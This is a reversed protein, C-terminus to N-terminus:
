VAAACLAASCEWCPPCWTVAAPCGPFLSPDRLCRVWSACLAPPPPATWARASRHPLAPCSSPPAPPAPRCPLAAPLRQPPALCCPPLHRLPAPEALWCQGQVCPEALQSTRCNEHQEHALPRTVWGSSRVRLRRYMCVCLVPWARVEDMAIFERDGVLVEGCTLRRREGGSIGSCLLATPPFAYVVLLCSPQQAGAKCAARSALARRWRVMVGSALAARVSGSVTEVWRIM